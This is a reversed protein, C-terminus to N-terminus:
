KLAEESKEHMKQLINFLTIVIIFVITMIISLILLSYVFWMQSVKDMLYGELIPILMAGVSLFIFLISAMKGTLRRINESLWSFMSAFIVSMGYGVVAISVWVLPTNEYVVASWLLVAGTTILSFFVLIVLSLRLYKVILIGSLRGAAFAIWFTSNAQSGQAKSWGVKTIIFTMLFGIFCREGMVYTALSLAVLVTFLIKMRKSLFYKREKVNKNGSVPTITSKEYVNGFLLSLIIYLSVAVVCVFTAILYPIYIYTRGYTFQLDFEDNVSRDLEAVVVQDDSNSNNMLTNKMSVSNDYLSKTTTREYKLTTNLDHLPLKRALFPECIFPSIIAGVSFIGHIAQMFPGAKHRWIVTVDATAASFYFPLYDLSSTIQFKTM